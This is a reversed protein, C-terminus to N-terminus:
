TCLFSFGKNLLGTFLAQRDREILVCVNPIGLEQSVVEKDM